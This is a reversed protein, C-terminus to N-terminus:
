KQPGRGEIRKEPQNTAQWNRTPPIKFSKEYKKRGNEIEFKAIWLQKRTQKVLNDFDATPKNERGLREAESYFIGLKEGDSKFRQIWEELCNKERLGDILREVKTQNEM